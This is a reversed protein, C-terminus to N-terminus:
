SVLRLCRRNSPVSLLCATLIQSSHSLSLCLTNHTRTLGRMFVLGFLAAILRNFLQVIKFLALNAPRPRPPHLFVPWRRCLVGRPGAASHIPSATGEGRGVGLGGGRRSSQRRLADSIEINNQWLFFSGPCLVCVFVCTFPCPKKDNTIDCSPLPSPLAPCSLVPGSHAPTCCAFHQLTAM